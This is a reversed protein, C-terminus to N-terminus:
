LENNIEITKIYSSNSKGDYEADEKIKYCHGLIIGGDITSYLNVWISQSEVALFLDSKHEGYIGNNAIGNKFYLMCDTEFVALLNRENEMDLLIVQKVDKQDRTVVKAGNLAKKLDFKELKM